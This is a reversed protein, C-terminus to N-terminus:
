ITMVVRVMILSYLGLRQNFNITDNGEGLEFRPRYYLFSDINVVDDGGGSQVKLSSINSPSTAGDEIHYVDTGSGSVFEGGIADSSITITNDGEGADVYDNTGASTITDNDADGYLRNTGTGGDIVDDGEGGILIDDGGLGTLTDDGGYGDILDDNDTGALVEAQDAGPRKNLLNDPNTDAM